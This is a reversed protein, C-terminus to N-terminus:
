SKSGGLGTQARAADQPFGTLALDGGFGQVGHKLGGFVQCELSKALSRPIRVREVRLEAAASVV